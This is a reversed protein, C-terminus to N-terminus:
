RTITEAAPPETIDAPEGWKDIQIETTHPTGTRAVKVTSKV